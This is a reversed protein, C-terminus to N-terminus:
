QKAFSVTYKALEFSSDILKIKCNFDKFCAFETCGLIIVDVNYKDEFINVLNRFEDVIEDIHNLKIQEILWNIKNQIERSHQILKIGEAQLYQLYTKNEYTVIGGLVAVSSARPHKKVLAEVTIKMIDLIPIKIKKQVDRLFFSASNCPIVIFDVPYKELRLCSDIMKHVPSEEGYLFHRSRSPIGTDNDIVIHLHEWDKKVVDIELLRQFFFLTAYPGMGGLIGVTKTKKSM